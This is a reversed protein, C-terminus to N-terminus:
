IILYIIGVIPLFYLFLWWGSRGTDHLRRVNIALFPMISAIIYIPELIVMISAILLFILHFMMAYWFDAKTTRGRFDSYRIWMNKYAEFGNIELNSQNSRDGQYWSNVHEDNENKRPDYEKFKFGDQDQNNAISHGCHSCYDEYPFLDKGCFQCNM